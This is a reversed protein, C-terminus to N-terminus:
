AQDETKGEPTKSSFSLVKAKKGAQQEQAEKKKELSFSPAKQLEDLNEPRVRASWQQNFLRNKWRKAQILSLVLVSEEWRKSPEYRGALAVYKEWLSALSAEDLTDLQRAMKLLLHEM